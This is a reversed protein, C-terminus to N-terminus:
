SNNEAAQVATDIGELYEPTTVDIDACSHALIMSEIGDLIGNYKLRSALDDSSEALKGAEVTWGRAQSEDCSFCCYAQSCYPCTAREIDSEIKGASPNDLDVTLTIYYHRSKLEITKM